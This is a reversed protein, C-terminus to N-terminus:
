KMMWKEVAHRAAQVELMQFHRTAAGPSAATLVKKTDMWNDLGAEGADQQEATNVDGTL